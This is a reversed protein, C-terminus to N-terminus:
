ELLGLPQVGGLAEVLCVIAVFRDKSRNEGLSSRWRLKQDRFVRTNERDEAICDARANAIM